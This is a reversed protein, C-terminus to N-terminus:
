REVSIQFIRENELMKRNVAPSIGRSLYPGNRVHGMFRAIVSRM